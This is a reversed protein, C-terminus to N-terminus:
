KYRYAFYKPLPTDYAQRLILMSNPSFYQVGGEVCRCNLSFDGTHCPVNLPILKWQYVEIETQKLPMAQNILKAIM